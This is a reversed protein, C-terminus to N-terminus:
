GKLIDAIRRFDERDAFEARRGRSGEVRVSTDLLDGVIQGLRLMHRALAIRQGRQEDALDAGRIRRQVEGPDTLHERTERVRM